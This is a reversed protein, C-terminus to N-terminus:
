PRHCGGRGFGPRPAHRRRGLARGLSGAPSTAGTQESSARESGPPLRVNIDATVWVKEVRCGLTGGVDSRPAQALPAVESVPRLISLMVTNTVPDITADSWDDLLRGAARTTPGIELCYRDRDLQAYSQADYPVMALPDLPVRTVEQGESTYFVLDTLTSSAGPASCFFLADLRAWGAIVVRGWGLDNPVLAIREGESSRVQCAGKDVLLVADNDRSWVAGRLWFDDEQFRISREEVSYLVYGSRISREESTLTPVVLLKGNRDWPQYCGLPRPGHGLRAVLAGHQDTVDRGDYFLAVQGWFDLGM